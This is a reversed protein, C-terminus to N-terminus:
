TRGEIVALAYELAKRADDLSALVESGYDAAVAREDAVAVANIANTLAHHAEQELPSLTM